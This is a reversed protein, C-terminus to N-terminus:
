PCLAVIEKVPATGYHRAMNARRRSNQTENTQV